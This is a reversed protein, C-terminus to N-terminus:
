FITLSNFFQKTHKGYQLRLSASNPKKPKPPAPTPSSPPTPLCPVTVINLKQLWNLSTLDRDATPSKVPPPKAEIRLIQIDNMLPSSSTSHSPEDDRQPSPTKPEDDAVDEMLFTKLIGEFTKKDNTHAAHSSEQGPSTTVDYTQCYSPLTTTTNIYTFADDEMPHSIVIQENSYLDTASELIVMPAIDTITPTMTKIPRHAVSGSTM